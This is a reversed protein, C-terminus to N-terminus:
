FYGRQAAEVAAMGHPYDGLLHGKLSSNSDGPRGVAVLGCIQGWHLTYHERSGTYDSVLTFIHSFAVATLGGKKM